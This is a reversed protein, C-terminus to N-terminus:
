NLEFPENNEFIQITKISEGKYDATQPDRAKINSVKEMGKTVKGFGSHCSTMPASCNLHVM